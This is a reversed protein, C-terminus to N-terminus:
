IDLFCTWVECFKRYMVQPWPVTRQCCYFVSQVELRTSSMMNKCLQAYKVKAITVPQRIPTFDAIRSQRTLKTNQYSEMVRIGVPLQGSVVNM